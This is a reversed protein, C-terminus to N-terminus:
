GFLCRWRLWCPKHRSIDLVRLFWMAFVLGEVAVSHPRDSDVSCCEGLDACAHHIWNKLDLELKQVFHVHRTMAMVVIQRDLLLSSLSALEPRNAFDQM